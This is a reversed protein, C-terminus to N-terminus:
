QFARTAASDRVPQLPLGIVAVPMARRIQRVANAEAM